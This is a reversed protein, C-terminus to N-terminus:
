KSNIIKEVENIIDKEDTESLRAWVISYYKGDTGKRSPFSIFDGNTGEVVHCGYIKVGNLTMDFLVSGNQFVRTRDVSFSDVIITPLNSNSNSNSNSNPKKM